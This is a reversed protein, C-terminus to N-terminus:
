KIAIWTRPNTIAKEILEKRIYQTLPAVGDKDIMEKPAPTVETVIVLVGGNDPIYQMKAEM